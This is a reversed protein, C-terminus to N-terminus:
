LHAKWKRCCIGYMVAVILVSRNGDGAVASIHEIVEIGLESADKRLDDSAKQQDDTSSSGADILLLVHYLLIHYCVL